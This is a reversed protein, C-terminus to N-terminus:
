LQWRPKIREELLAQAAEEGRGSRNKLDLFLQIDDMVRSAGVEQTLSFLFPDECFHLRVNPGSDVKKLGCSQSLKQLNSEDGFVYADVVNYRVAPAVRSAGSFSGLAVNMNHESGSEMLKEEIQRPQGLSFFSASPLKKPDYDESWKELLSGPDSLIFGGQVKRGMEWEILAKKVQPILGISVDAKNKLDEVKWPRIDNLLMLRIVRSSKLSFISRLSREEKEPRRGYIDLLVLGMKLHCNGLLDIANVQMDKCIQLAKSSLGPAAVVPYDNKLGHQKILDKLQLAALRVPNPQGRSIYEIWLRGRKRGPLEVEVVADLCIGPFIQKKIEINLIFISGTKKLVDELQEVVQSIQNKNNKM